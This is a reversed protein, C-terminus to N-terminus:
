QKMAPLALLEANTWPRPRRATLARVAKVTAPDVPTGPQGWERRIYTLVDAVQEDSLIAGVPPMLGIAGEKGNLLIRSTVEAPALALESGILDAALRAQGHGDPQHCAQCINRYIGSGAEYRAQEERSLPRLPALAGPKGPWDVRALVARARPSLGGSSESLAVFGDPERNLHLGSRNQWRRTPPPPAVAHGFYYAGGPPKKDIALGGPGAPPGPMKAGLLAVETGRLLASCRWGTRDAEAITGLLNQIATEQAGRVITAALM